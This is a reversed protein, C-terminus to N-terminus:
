NEKIFRLAVSNICYRLGTPPPGDEFVHGLHGDCRSCLVEIREMGFSKDPRTIISKATIPSWFSPWGTGSDFKAQSSFLENGCASCAFIGPKKFDHYQGSFAPETGKQRMVEYQEKTLFKKWEEDSKIMKASGGEGPKSSSEEPIGASFIRSYFNLFILSFVITTVLVWYFVATKFKAQSNKRV